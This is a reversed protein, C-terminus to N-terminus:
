PLLKEFKLGFAERKKLAKYVGIDPNSKKLIEISTKINDDSARLGFYINKICEPTIPEKKNSGDLFIIRWEDEYSWDNSKTLFMMKYMEEMAVECPNIIPFNTDYNVKFLFLKINLKIFKEDICSNLKLSDFELCFGTHGNAYHSWLLLNDRHQTMSFIGVTQEIATELNNSFFDQNARLRAYQSEILHEPIKGQVKRTLIDFMKKKLQEETCLDYRLPIQSDFPDNLGTRSSLWLFNNLLDKYYGDNDFSTFKYLSKVDSNKLEEFDLELPM